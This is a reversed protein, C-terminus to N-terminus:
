VAQRVAPLRLYAPANLSSPMRGIFILKEWSDPLMLIEPAGRVVRGTEDVSLAAQRSM